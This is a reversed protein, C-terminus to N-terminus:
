ISQIRRLYRVMVEANKTPPQHTFTKFDATYINSIVGYQNQILYHVQDSIIAVEELHHTIYLVLINLDQAIKKVEEMFELKLFPDLGTTPEDLLLIKPNLSLAKLLSLRRREGGSLQSVKKESDELLNAINLIAKYHEFMQEEFQKKKRKIRTKFFEANEAITLHEFLVPEQPVYAIKDSDITITGSQEKELRLILKFLTTKGVGSPGLICHVCHGTKAPEELVWNLNQFIRQEGYGFTINKFEIM